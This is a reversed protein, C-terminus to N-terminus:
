AAPEAAPAETAPIEAAPIEAAPAETAPAEEVVPEATAVETAAPEEAVSTTDGETVASSVESTTNSTVEESTSAESTESTVSAVSSESTTSASSTESTTSASSTESASSTSSPSSTESSVSSVESTSSSASAEGAPAAPVRYAEIGATGNVSGEAAGGKNTEATPVAADVRYASKAYWGTDVVDGNLLMDLYDISEIFKHLEAEISEDSTEGSGDGPMPVSGDVIWLTPYTGDVVPSTDAHGPTGSKTRGGSKLASSDPVTSVVYDNSQVIKLFDSTNDDFRNLMSASTKSFDDLITGNVVEGQENSMDNLYNLLNVVFYISGGEACDGTGAFAQDKSYYAGKIFKKQFEMSTNYLKQGDETIPSLDYVIEDFTDGDHLRKLITDLGSRLTESSISFTENGKADKQYTISSTGNKSAQLECLYLTALYGSVYAANENDIKEGDENVSNSYWLDFYAPKGDVTAALYGKVVSEPTFANPKKLNGTSLLDFSGKRYYFVNEVASASGEVFWTPFHLDIYKQGLEATPFQGDPGLVREAMNLTGEMGTRTYDDMFAHFMEHVITNEFTGVAEGDRVLIYKGTNPDTVFNGNEDKKAFSSADFGFMYGFHYVGDQLVPDSSVYALASRPAGSHSAVGDKDGETFYIYLGISTGIEGNQAAEAFAPFKEMLLNVAEPELKNLVLDLIWEIDEDTFADQLTQACYIDILTLAPVPESTSEEAASQEAATQESAAAGVPTVQEADVSSGQDDKQSAGAGLGTRTSFYDRLKAPLIYTIGKSENYVSVVDKGDFLKHLEDSITIKFSTGKVKYADPVFFALAPVYTKGKVAETALQLDSDIWLVPIDWSVGAGTRVTATDDLAKGAKPAEVSGIILESVEEAQDSAKGHNEVDVETTAFAVAPYSTSVLMTASLIAALAKGSYRSFM